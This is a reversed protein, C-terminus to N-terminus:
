NQRTQRDPQRNANPGSASTSTYAAPDDLPRMPSPVGVSLDQNIEELLADDSAQTTAAPATASVVPSSQGARSHHLGLPVLAALALVAAVWYLPRALSHPAPLVTEHARSAHIAAFEHRAFSTSTERFLTLSRSLRTLEESCAPCARLHEDLAAFDSSLPHPGCALILDSLQEHTLHPTVHPALNSTM